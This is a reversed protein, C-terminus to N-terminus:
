RPLDGAGGGGGESPSAVASSDCVRTDAQKRAKSLRRNMGQMNRSGAAQPKKTLCCAHQVINLYTFPIFFFM